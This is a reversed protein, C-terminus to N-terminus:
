VKGKFNTLVVPALAIVFVVMVGLWIRVAGAPAEVLKNLALCCLIHVTLLVLLARKLGPVGSPPSPAFEILQLQSPEAM